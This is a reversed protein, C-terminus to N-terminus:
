QIAGVSVKQENLIGRQLQRVDGPDIGGAVKREQKKMSVNSVQASAQANPAAANAPNAATSSATAPQASSQTNAAAAPSNANNLTPTTNGTAKLDVGDRHLISKASPDIKQLVSRTWSAARQMATPPPAPQTTVQPVPTAPTTPITPTAILPATSSSPASAGTGPATSVAGPGAIPGSPSPSDKPMSPGFMARASASFPSAAAPVALVCATLASSVILINRKYVNTEGDEILAFSKAVSEHGLRCAFTRSFFASLVQRRSM